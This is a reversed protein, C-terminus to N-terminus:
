IAYRHCIYPLTFPPSLKKKKKAKVTCYHRAHTPPFPSPALLTLPSPSRRARSGEEEEKEMIPTCATYYLNSGRRLLSPWFLTSHFIIAAHPHPIQRSRKKGGACITPPRRLPLSLLLHLTTTKHGSRKGSVRPPPSADDGRSPLLLFAPEERRRRGETFVCWGHLHPFPWGLELVM